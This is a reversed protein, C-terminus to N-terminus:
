MCKSFLGFTSVFCLLLSLRSTLGPQGKNQVKFPIRSYQDEMKETHFAVLFNNWCIRKSIQLLIVMWNFNM